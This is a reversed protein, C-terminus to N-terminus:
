NTDRIVDLSSFYRIFFPWMGVSLGVAEIYMNVTLTGYTTCFIIGFHLFCYALRDPLSLSSSQRRRPATSAFLADM